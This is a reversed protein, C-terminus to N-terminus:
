GRRAMLEALRDPGIAGHFVAHVIILGPEVTYLVAFPYRNLRARRVDGHVVPFSLPREVITDLTLGVEDLFDSGLGLQQREYWDYQRSADLEAFGRVLLRFSV